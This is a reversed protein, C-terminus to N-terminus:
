HYPRYSSPLTPDKDPKLLLRILTTNMHSPIKGKTKIETVTRYFLPAMTNWFHKIFEAPFGDPDPAKINPTKMLANHLKSLTLPVDLYDVQEKTLSPLDLKNLFLQIDILKPDNISSYLNHYIKQFIKNIEEASQTCKEM